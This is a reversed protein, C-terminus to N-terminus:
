QHNGRKNEATTPRVSAVPKKRFAVSGNEPEKSNSSDEDPPRELRAEIKSWFRVRERDRTYEYWKLLDERNVMFGRLEGSSVPIADLVFPVM